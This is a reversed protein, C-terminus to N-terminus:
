TTVAEKLCGFSLTLPLLRPPCTLPSLWSVQQETINLSHGEPPSPLPLMLPPDDETTRQLSETQLPFPLLPLKM